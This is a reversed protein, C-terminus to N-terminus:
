KEQLGEMTAQFLMPIKEGRSIERKGEM